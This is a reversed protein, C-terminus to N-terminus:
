KFGFSSFNDGTQFTYTSGVVNFYFTGNIPNFTFNPLQFTQNQIIAWNVAQLGIWATNSISQVGSQGASITVNIPYPSVSAVPSSGIISGGTASSVINYAQNYYSGILSFTYNITKTFGPTTSYYTTAWGLIEQYMQLLFPNIGVGKVRGWNYLGSKNKTDAALFQTVQAVQITTASSM